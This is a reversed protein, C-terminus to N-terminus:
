LGQDDEARQVPRAAPSPGQSRSALERGNGGRRSNGDDAAREGSLRRGEWRASGEGEAPLRDGAGVVEPRLGLLGFRRARAREKSGEICEDESPLPDALLPVTRPLHVASASTAESLSLYAAIYDVLDGPPDGRGVLGEKRLLEMLGPHLLPWMGPAQVHWLCLLLGAFSDLGTRRVAGRDAERQIFGEADLMRGKAESLDEPMAGLTRVVPSLDDIDMALMIESLAEGVERPPFAGSTRVFVDDLRYKVTGLNIKGDLFDLVTARLGPLSERVLEDEDEHDLDRGESRFLYLARRLRDALAEESSM